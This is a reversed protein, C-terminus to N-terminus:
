TRAADEARNRRTRRRRPVSGPQHEAPGISRTPCSRATRIRADDLTYLVWHHVAKGTTGASRIKLPQMDGPWPSRFYFQRVVESDAAVRYGSEDDVKAAGHARFLHRVECESSWEDGASTAGGAPAREFPPTEASPEM